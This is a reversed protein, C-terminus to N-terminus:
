VSYSLKCSTISLIYLFDYVEHHGLYRLIEARGAFSEAIQHQYDDNLTFSSGGTKKEFNIVIGDNESSTLDNQCRYMNHINYPFSCLSQFLFSYKMMFLIYLITCTGAKFQYVFHSSGELIQMALLIINFM